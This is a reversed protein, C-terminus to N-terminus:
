QRRGLERIKALALTKSAVWDGFHRSYYDPGYEVIYWHIVFWQSHVEPYSCTLKQEEVLLASGDQLYHRWWRRELDDDHKWLKWGSETNRYDELFALREKDNRFTKM